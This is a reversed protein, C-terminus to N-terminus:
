AARKHTDAWDAWVSITHKLDDLTRGELRDIRGDDRRFSHVFSDLKMTEANGVILILAHGYGLLADHLLRQGRPIASPRSKWEGFLLHGGIEVVMDVDGFCIGRPFCEAFVEIKPRKLRNFCGDIECKWRMPNSM